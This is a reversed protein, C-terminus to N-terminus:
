HRAQWVILGGHRCCLGDSLGLIQIEEEEWTVDRVLGRVMSRVGGEGGGGVM